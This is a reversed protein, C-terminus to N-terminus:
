QSLQSQTVVDIAAVAKEIASLADPDSETLCRLLRAEPPETQQIRMGAFHAVSLFESELRQLTGIHHYAHAIAALLDPNDVYVLEGGDAFANWLNDRLPEALVTREGGQPLSERRAEIRGVNEQLEARLLSLVRVRRGIHEAEKSARESRALVNQQRRAIELAVPVGAVVGVLTAFLNGMTSDLYGPADVRAIFFAVTVVVLLAWVTWLITTRM